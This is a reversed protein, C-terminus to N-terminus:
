TFYYLLTVVAAVVAIACSDKQLDGDGVRVRSSWLGVLFVDLKSDDGGECRLITFPWNCARTIQKFSCPGGEVVGSSGGALGGGCVTTMVVKM